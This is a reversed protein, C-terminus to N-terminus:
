KGSIAFGWPGAELEIEQGLDQPAEPPIRLCVSAPKDSFNALVAVTKDRGYRMFAFHRRMDFGLAAKQCYCLDYNPSDSLATRLSMIDRYYGLIERQAESLPALPDIHRQDSFISTRGCTGDHAAEGLEQGFYLM